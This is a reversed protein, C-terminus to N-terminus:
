SIPFHWEWRYCGSDRIRRESSPKHPWRVVLQSSSQSTEDSTAKPAPTSWYWRPIYLNPQCSGTGRRHSHEGPFFELCLTRLLLTRRCNPTQLNFLGGWSPDFFCDEAQPSSIVYHQLHSVVPSSILTPGQTKQATRCSSLPRGVLPPRAWDIAPNSPARTSTICVYM